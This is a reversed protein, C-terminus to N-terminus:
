LSSCKSTYGDYLNWHCRLGSTPNAYADYTTLQDYFSNGDDSMVFTEIANTLYRKSTLTKKQIYTAVISNYGIERYDVYVNSPLYNPDTQVVCQPNSGLTADNVGYVTLNGYWLYGTGFNLYIQDFFAGDVIDTQFCAALTEVVLFNPGLVSCNALWLNNAMSFTVPYQRQLYKSPYNTQACELNNPFSYTTNLSAILALLVVLLKM